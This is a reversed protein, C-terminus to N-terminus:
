DEMIKKICYNIRQNDRWYDEFAELLEDGLKEDIVRWDSEWLDCELIRDIVGQITYDIDRILKTEMWQGGDGYTKSVIDTMWYDVYGEEEDEYTLASGNGESIGYLTDGNWLYITDGVYDNWKMNMDIGKIKMRM